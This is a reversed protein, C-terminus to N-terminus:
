RKTTTGRLDIETLRQRCFYVALVGDVKTPRLAVPKGHFGKGIRYPTGKYTLDGKDDVKRVIDGPGYEIEPLTEPFPRRSPAYRDIPPRGGLAEHPRELNYEERWTDFRSQCHALDRFRSHRIVEVNLTRHFREDKGQTQPHYPRSHGVGIGLQLLWVALKTPEDRSGWPSGNDMTMRDPLGYRRFAETLAQQVTLRQEDACATLSIAYRSHDDLITLPHCRGLDLAFHGKFDMQWLDNPDDHEFRQWPKHNHSEDPSICGHRQLIATITSASPVGTYGQNRLWARIKRGGWAPHLRRVELVAQEVDPHTRAPSHHPRRSQPQLGDAGYERFARIAEYGAQRSIDFRRCLESINAGEVNALMAFELKQSLASVEHWPM